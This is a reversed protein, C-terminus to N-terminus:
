EYIDEEYWEPDNDERSELRLLANEIWRISCDLEENIALDTPNIQTFKMLELRIAELKIRM